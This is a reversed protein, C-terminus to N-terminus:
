AAGFGRKLRDSLWSRLAGRVEDRSQLASSAFPFWQGDLMVDTQGDVQVMGVVVYIGWGKPHLQLVCFMVRASDLVLAVNKEQEKVDGRPVVLGHMEYAKETLSLPSEELTVFGGVSEAFKALDSKIAHQLEEAFESLSTLKEEQFFAEFEATVYKARDGSLSVASLLTERQQDIIFHVFPVLDGRNAKELVTIYAMRDRLKVTFPLLGAKMLVLSALSRAVRGNGDHFPHIQVFRHHLWAALVEPAVGQEDYKDVLSLLRDIEGDVRDFPCYQHILKDARQPFNPQNKFRGRRILVKIKQDGVMSETFRANATFALQLDFLMAKSINFKQTTIQEALSEVVRKQDMIIDEIMRVDAAGEQVGMSRAPDSTIAAASIGHVILSRAAGESLIYLNEVRGTEVAWERQITEIIDVVLESDLNKVSRWMQRLLSIADSQSTGLNEPLETFPAWEHHVKDVPLGFYHEQQLRAEKDFTDKWQLYEGHMKIALSNHPALEVLRKSQAAAEHFDQLTVAADALHYLCPKCQPFIKLLREAALLRSDASVGTNLDDVLPKMYLAFKPYAMIGKINTLEVEDAKWRYSKYVRMSLIAIAAIAVAVVFDVWRPHRMSQSRGLKKGRSANGGKETQMKGRKIEERERQKAVTHQHDTHITM